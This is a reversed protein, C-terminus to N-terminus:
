ISFLDQYEHLLETVKDVTANDWYDRLTAYKLEADIGINVEKTKLLATINPDEISPGRVKRCGENEPININSPDGDDEEVQVNYCELAHSLHPSWVLQVVEQTEQPIKLIVVKMAQLTNDITNSWPDEFTFTLM